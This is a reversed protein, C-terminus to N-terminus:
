EQRSVAINRLYGGCEPCYRSEVASTYRESCDLCEYYPDDSGHPDELMM